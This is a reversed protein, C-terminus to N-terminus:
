FSTRALRIAWWSSGPSRGSALLQDLVARVDRTRGSHYQERCQGMSPGAGRLNLRLVPYGDAILRAATRRVYRSDESGTLGHLIVVLPRDAAPGEPHDMAGLLVDGTGDEMPFRMRETRKSPIQAMPLFLFDGATQLDGGIWPFRQRFPPFDLKPPPAKTM